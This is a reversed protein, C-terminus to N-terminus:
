YIEIFGSRDNITLRRYPSKIEWTGVWTGHPFPLVINCAHFMRHIVQGHEPLHPSLASEYNM